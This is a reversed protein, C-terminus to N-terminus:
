RFLDTKELTLSLRICFVVVGATSFVIILIEVWNWFSHFYRLGKKHIQYAEKSIFIILGTLFLLQIIITIAAGDSTYVLLNVPEVRWIPFMGGSPTVEVLLTTIVFLNM